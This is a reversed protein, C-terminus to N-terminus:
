EDSAEAQSAQLAARAQERAMYFIHWAQPSVEKAPVINDSTSVLRELAARLPEAQPESERFVACPWDEHDKLCRVPDAWKHESPIACCPTHTRHPESASLPAPALVAHEILWEAYLGAEEENLLPIAGKQIRQSELLADALRSVASPSTM